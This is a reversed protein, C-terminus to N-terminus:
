FHTLAVASSCSFCDTEKNDHNSDVTALTLIPVQSCFQQTQMESDRQVVRFTKALLVSQVPASRALLM